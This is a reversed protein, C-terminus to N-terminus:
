LVHSELKAIPVPTILPVVVLTALFILPTVVFETIKVHILPVLYLLKVIKVPSFPIMPVRVPTTLFILPIQAVQVTKVRIPKVHSKPKVFNALTHPTALARFHPSISPTPAFAMPTVLTPRVPFLPKM